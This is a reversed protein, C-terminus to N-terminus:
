GKVEKINEIYEIIGCTISLSLQKQYEKQSLKECEDPNSMFGCEIILAPCAAHKLLYIEDSAPKAERKNDPAVFTRLAIQM